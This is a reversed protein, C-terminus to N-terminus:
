EGARIGRGASISGGNWSRDRATAQSRSAGQTLLEVLERRAEQDVGYRDFLAIVQQTVRQVDIQIGIRGLSRPLLGCAILLGTHDVLAAHQAKLAGLKVADHRSREALLALEEILAERRQLAEEVLQLPDLEALTPQSQRQQQFIERCHRESVQHRQSITPWILGRLRDAIIERDRDVKRQAPLRKM